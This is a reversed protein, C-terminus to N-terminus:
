GGGGSTNWAKWCAANRAFRDMESETRTREKIKERKRERGDEDLNHNKAREGGEEMKNEGGIIRKVDSKNLNFPLTTASLLKEIFIM